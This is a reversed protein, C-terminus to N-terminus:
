SDSLYLCLEFLHAKTCELVYRVLPIPSDVGRSSELSSLYLARQKESNEWDVQFSRFLSVPVISCPQVIASFLLRAMRGNGNEYPHIWLFRELFFAGLVLLAKFCAFRDNKHLELAERKKRNTFDLLHRANLEIASPLHLFHLSSGRAPKVKKTRWHGPKELLDCMLLAHLQHLCNITLTHAPSRQFIWEAAQALNRVKLAGKRRGALAELEQLTEIHKHISRFSKPSEKCLTQALEVAQETSEGFAEVSPDERAWTEHVFCCRLGREAESDLNPELDLLANLYREMNSWISQIHRKIEGLQKADRTSSNPNRIIWLFDRDTTGPLVDQDVFSQLHAWRAEM